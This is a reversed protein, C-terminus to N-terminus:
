KLFYRITVKSQVHVHKFLAHLVALSKIRNQFLQPAMCPRDELDNQPSQILLGGTM